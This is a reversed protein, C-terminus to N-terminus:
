GALEGELSTVSTLSPLFAKSKPSGMGLGMVPFTQSLPSSMAAKYQPHLSPSPPLQGFRSRPSTSPLRGKSAANSPPSRSLGDIDLNLRSPRRKSSGNLNPSSASSGSGGGASTFNLSSASGRGRFQDGLSSHSSLPSATPSRSLKPSYSGAGAASSSLPAVAPPINVHHATSQSLAERVAARTDENMTRIEDEDLTDDHTGALPRYVPFVDPYVPSSASKYTSVPLPGDKMKTSDAVLPAFQAPNESAINNSPQAETLTRQKQGESAVDLESVGVAAQDQQSQQRCDRQQEEAQTRLSGTPGNSAFFTEDSPSSSLYSKVVQDAVSLGEGDTVNDGASSLQTDLTTPESSLHADYAFSPTRMDHSPGRKPSNSVPSCTSPQQHSFRDTVYSAQSWREVAPSEEKGLHADSQTAGEINEKVVTTPNDHARGSRQEPTASRLDSGLSQSREIITGDASSGQQLETYSNSPDHSFSADSDAGSVVNGRLFHQIRAINDEDNDGMISSLEQSDKAEAEGESAFPESSKLHDMPALIPSSAPEVSEDTADEVRIPRYAFNENENEDHERKGARPTTTTTADGQVVEAAVSQVSPGSPLVHQATQPSVVPMTMITPVSQTAGDTISHVTGASHTSEADGVETSAHRPMGEVQAFEILRSSSLPAPFGPVRSRSSSVASTSAPRPSVQGRDFPSGGAAFTSRVNSRSKATAAKARAFWKPSPTVSASISRAYALSDRSSMKRGNADQNQGLGPNPSCAPSLLEVARQMEELSDSLDGSSRRSDSSPRRDLPPALSGPSAPPHQQIIPTSTSRQSQPARPTDFAHAVATPSLLQPAQTTALSGLQPKVGDFAAADLHIPSLLSVAPAPATVLSNGEGERKNTAADHTEASFANQQAVAVSAAGQDHSSSDTPGTIHPIGYPDQRVKSAWLGVVEDFDSEKPLQLDLDQHEDDDDFGGSSAPPGTPTKGIWSQIRAVNSRQPSYYADHAFNGAPDFHRYFAAEQHNQEITGPAWQSLSPQDRSVSAGNHDGGPLFDAVSPPREAHTQEAQDDQWRQAQTEERPEPFMQDMDHQHLDRWMLEDGADVIFSHRLPFGEHPFNAEEVEDGVTQQAPLARTEGAPSDPLASYGGDQAPDLPDLSYDGDRDTVRDDDDDAELIESYGTRSQDSTDHHSLITSSAEAPQLPAISASEDVIASESPMGDQLEDSANRSLLQPAANSLSSMPRSNYSSMSIISARASRLPEDLPSHREPALPAAPSSDAQQQNKVLDQQDHSQALSRASASQPVSRLSERKEDAETIPPMPMSPSPPLPIDEPTNYVLSAPRSVSVATAATDLHRSSSAHTEPERYRQPLSLSTRRAEAEQDLQDAEDRDHQDDYHEDLENQKSQQALSDALHLSKRTKHAPRQSVRSRSSIWSPWWSAKSSDIQWEIRALIPLQPFPLVPAPVRSASSSAHGSWAASRASPSWDASTDRRPFALAEVRPSPRASVYPISPRSSSGEGLTSRSLDAAHSSSFASTGVFSDGAVMSSRRSPAFATSPKFASTSPTEDEAFYRAWLAQWAADGIRPGRNGQGDDALYLMLGGLSPLAFERSIAWLQGGLSPYLPLLSGRELRNREQQSLEPSVLYDEPPVVTVFYIPSPPYPSRYANIVPSVGTAAASDLPASLPAATPLFAREADNSVAPAGSQISSASAPFSMPQSVATSLGLKDHQHHAGLQQSQNDPSSDFTTLLTSDNAVRSSPLSMVPSAQTSTAADVEDFHADSTSGPLLPAGVSSM